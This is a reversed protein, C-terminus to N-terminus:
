NTVCNPACPTITPHCLARPAALRRPHLRHAQGSAARAGDLSEDAGVHTGQRQRGDGVRQLPVFGPAVTDCRGTLSRIEDSIPASNFDGCIIPPFSASAVEGVFGVLNGVSAQRVASAHPPGTSAWRSSRCCAAPAMSAGSSPRAAGPTLGSRPSSAISTLTSPGDCCCDPGMGWDEAFFMGGGYIHNYGLAQGLRAAQTEGDPTCWCEQLAVIDPRVVKLTNILAAERAQWPGFRGWVNWTLVRLTSTILEGYPPGASSNSTM